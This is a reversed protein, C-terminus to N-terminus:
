RAIATAGNNKSNNIIIAGKLNANPGIIINGIGVGNENTTIERGKSATLKGIFKQSIFADNLDEQIDDNIAEEPAIGDNFNTADSTSIFCGLVIAISLKKNM